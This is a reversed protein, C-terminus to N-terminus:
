LGRFFFNDIQNKKLQKGMVYCSTAVTGVVQKENEIALM